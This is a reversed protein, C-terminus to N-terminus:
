SRNNNQDFRSPHFEPPIGPRSAGSLVAGLADGTWPGFLIGNRGFGCAYLIGPQGADEGLIPFGDPSFPRLGGWHDVVRAHRLEPILSTAADRLMTRARDTTSPDFGVEESTAGILLAEGRPVLYSGSRYVVHRVPARDLTLLEGKVPRVPLANPLGPIGGWAGNALLIRDSELHAGDALTSRPCTGSLNVSAIRSHIVEILPHCQAAIWLADMLARNDVWGDRPHHVAGPHSALAPELESLERQLLVRADTPARARLQELDIDSEALELVGSRDLGISSGSRELLRALFDPYLDRAAFAVERM